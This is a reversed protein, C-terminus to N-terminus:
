RSLPSVPLPQESPRRRRSEKLGVRLRATSQADPAPVVLTPLALWGEVTAARSGHPEAGWSPSSGGGAGLAEELDPKMQWALEM